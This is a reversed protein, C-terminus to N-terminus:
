MRRAYPEPRIATPNVTVSMMSTALADGNTEPAHVHRLDVEGVEPRVLVVRSVASVLAALRDMTHTRDASEDIAVALSELSALMALAGAEQVPALRYARDDLAEAVPDDVGVVVVPGFLPDEVLRVRIGVEEAEGQMLVDVGLARCAVAAAEGEVTGPPLVVAAADHEVFVTRASSPSQRWAAYRTVADLAHFADEIDSFSPVGSRRSRGLGVSEGVMLAVLPKHHVTATAETAETAPEVAYRDLVARIEDASQHEIPPVFIALVSGVGPNAM